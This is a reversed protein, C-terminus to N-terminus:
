LNERLVELQLLNVVRNGSEGWLDGPERLTEVAGGRNETKKLAVVRVCCVRVFLLPRALAPAFSSVSYVLLDRVRGVLSM